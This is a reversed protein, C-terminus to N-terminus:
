INVMMNMAECVNVEYMGGRRKASLIECQIIM